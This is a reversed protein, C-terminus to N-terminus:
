TARRDAVSETAAALQLLCSAPGGCDLRSQREELSSGIMPQPLDLQRLACRSGGQFGDGWRAFWTASEALAREATFPNDAPSRAPCHVVAINLKRQCYVRRPFSLYPSRDPRLRSARSTQLAIGLSQDDDDIHRTAISASRSFQRLSEQRAEAGSLCDSSSRGPGATRRWRARRKTGMARPTRVPFPQDRHRQQATEARVTREKVIVGTAHIGPDRRARPADVPLKRLRKMEHRWRLDKGHCARTSSSLLPSACVAAPKHCTRALLCLTFKCTTSVSGAFPVDRCHEIGLRSRFSGACDSCAKAITALVYARL